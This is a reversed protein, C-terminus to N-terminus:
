DRFSRIYSELEDEERFFVLDDKSRKPESKPQATDRTIGRYPQFQFFGRLLTWFGAHHSSTPVHLAISKM